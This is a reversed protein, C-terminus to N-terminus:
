FLHRVGVGFMNSKAGKIMNLNDAYSYYGYLGTRKSLSYTYGVSAITQNATVGSVKLDGGPRKQQVGVAIKGGGLPASVGVLWSQARVGRAFTASGGTQGSGGAIIANEISDAAGVLGDIEQGYAAHIKAVKFDYTGGVQWSKLNTDNDVLGAGTNENNSYLYNFIGSVLIPGNAYRLGASAIRDKNNTEFGAAASNTSLGPQFSYGVVANFGSISPTSYTVMDDYREFSMGASSTYSSTGFSAGFPDVGSFAVTAPSVARGLQVKGWSAGELAVTAQRGFLRGGQSQDGDTSDFGSELQFSAKLGNGLDEVGRLGWRSGSWEGTDMRFRSRTEEGDGAKITQYELGTSIVGYLTVSNQASAAGAYGAILAAALLTKKM